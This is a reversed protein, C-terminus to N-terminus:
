HYITSEPTAGLSLQEDWPTPHIARTPHTAHYLREPSHWSDPRTM